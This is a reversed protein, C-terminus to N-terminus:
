NSNLAEQIHELGTVQCMKKLRKKPAWWAMATEFLSIGNSEFTKRVIKERQEESLDPFCLRVNTEAIHRRTKMLRYMLRGLTRGLRLQLKFPLLISLRLLALALWTLWYKPALYPLPNFRTKNDSM